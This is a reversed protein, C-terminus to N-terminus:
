NNHVWLLPLRCFYQVKGASMLIPFAMQRWRKAHIQNGNAGLFAAILQWPQAVFTSNQFHLGDLILSDFQMQAIQEIRKASHM